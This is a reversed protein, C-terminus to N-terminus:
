ARMCLAHLRYAGLYAACLPVLQALNDPTAVALAFTWRVTGTDRTRESYSVQTGAYAM